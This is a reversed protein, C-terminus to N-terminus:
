RKDWHDILMSVVDDDTMNRNGINRLREMTTIKIRALATDKTAM